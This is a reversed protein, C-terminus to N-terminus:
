FFNLLKVLFKTKNSLVIPAYFSAAARQNVQSISPYAHVLQALVSLKIKARIMLALEHILESANHSFISAGVLRNNSIYLKVLAKSENSTILGDVNSADFAHESFKIKKSLLEQKSLGCTAVNPECFIVAPINTLDLKAPIKFLANKIFLKAHLEAMHTLKIPSAIVDGIAWVKKNSTGLKNNVLIGHESYKIQANELDLDKVNPSRGMALLVYDADIQRVQNQYNIVINIKNDFYELKELNAGLYFKVGESELKEKALKAIDSDLEGLVQPNKDIVTVVSGLRQMAQALEIGIAGAGIILLSEPLTTLNFINENTLIKNKPLLDLGPLNPFIPSSGTAIVIKKAIYINDKLKLQNKAIFKPEGIIVECGLKTFRDISDHKQIKAIKTKVYDLAKIFSDNSNSNSVNVLGLNNAQKAQYVLKAAYILSKSPVCGYHLCDGGLNPNKDFLTVKLGMQAAFSAINLGAAGGGIVIIDQKYKAM